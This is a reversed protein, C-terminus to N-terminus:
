ARMVRPESDSLGAAILVNQTCWPTWNNMPEGDRGMWWFHERLYPELIRERVLGRIRAGIAPSVADLRSGLLHLAVSLQAGTECAFLDLVPREPSPLPLQPEDRVYANHAPIQWGCESCIADIGDIAGDLFRGDGAACEALVFDNLARRRAFYPEEYRSRNGTRTFDLYLSAPLPPYAFPARADGAAVLRAADARDLGDWFSRNDATPFPVYRALRGPLETLRERYM